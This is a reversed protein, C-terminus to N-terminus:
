MRNVESGLCDVLAFLNLYLFLIIAETLITVLLDCFLM